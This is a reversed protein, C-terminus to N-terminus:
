RNKDAHFENLNPIYGFLPSGVATFRGERRAEKYDAVQRIVEQKTQISLETAEILRQLDDSEESQFNEVLWALLNHRVTENSHGLLRLVVGADSKSVFPQISVSARSAIISNDSAVIRLLRERISAVGDPTLTAPEVSQLGVAAALVYYRQDREDLGRLISKLRTDAPILHPHFLLNAVGQDNRWEVLTSRILSADADSLSGLRSTIRLLDDLDQTALFATIAVTGEAPGGARCGLLACVLVVSAVRVHM